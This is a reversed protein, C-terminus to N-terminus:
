NLNSCFLSLLEGARLAPVLALENYKWVYSQVEFGSKTLGTVYTSGVFGCYSNQLSCCWLQVHYGDVEFAVVSHVM